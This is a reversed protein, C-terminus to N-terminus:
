YLKTAIVILLWRRKLVLYSGMSVIAVGLAIVAYWGANSESDTKEEQEEEVPTPKPNFNVDEKISETITDM